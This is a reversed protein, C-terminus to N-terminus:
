KCVGHICKVMWGEWAVGEGKWPIPSPHSVLYTSYISAYNVVNITEMKDMLTTYHFICICMSYIFM